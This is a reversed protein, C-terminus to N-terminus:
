YIEERGNDKVAKKIRKVVECITSITISYPIMLAVLCWAGMDQWSFVTGVVCALVFSVCQLIWLSFMCFNSEMKNKEDM